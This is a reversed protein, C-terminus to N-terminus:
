VLLAEAKAPHSTAIAKLKVKLWQCATHILLHASGTVMSLCAQPHLGQGCLIELSWLEVPCVKPFGSM